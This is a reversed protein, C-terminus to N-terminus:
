VARGRLTPFPAPPVTGFPIPDDFHCCWNQLVRSGRGGVYTDSDRLNGVAMNTGAINVTRFGYQLRPHTSPASNLDITVENAGTLTVTSIDASGDDSYSFGLNTVSPVKTTDVVLPPVPVTFTATIQTGTMSISLPAVPHWVTQDYLAKFVKAHYEGLDYYGEAELHIGGSKYPLHYKPGALIIKGPKARHADLMSLGTTPATDYAPWSTVQTLIIPVDSTQGTAAKIDGDYDSQWEELFALYQTRGTDIAMDNEGHVILVGGCSFTKSAAIAASKAYGLYTISSNYYTTGKKVGVYPTAAHGSTHTSWTKSGVHEYVAKMFSLQGSEWDANPVPEVANTFAPTTTPTLLVGPYPDTTTLNAAAQGGLSLSQGTQIFHIHDTLTLTM